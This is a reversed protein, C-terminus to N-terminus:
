LEVNQNSVCNKTDPRQTTPQPRSPAIQPQNEMLVEKIIQKLDIEEYKPYNL